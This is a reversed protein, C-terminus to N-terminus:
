KVQFYCDDVEFQGPPGELRDFEEGVDFGATELMWRLALRGPVWWWTPDDHYAGPVFRAYESLGPSALVMSGIFGTGGEALMERLRQLMEMPHLEHYLVGNCHVLDFRGHRAPDLDRWGIQQFDVGRRYISELFVAQHYFEDPECATVQDAGRLSFMFADYGANAGVELVRRGSLDEPVRKGLEVWRRDSRWAGGVVVDGGLLFPGQLWPHLREAREVLDAREQPSLEEPLDDAFRALRSLDVERAAPREIGLQRKVAERIGELAEGIAEPGGAVDRDSV